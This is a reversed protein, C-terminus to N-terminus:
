LVVELGGLLEGVQGDLVIAVVRLGEDVLAVREENVLVVVAGLLEEELGDANLGVADLGDVGEAEDILAEAVVILAQLGEFLQM